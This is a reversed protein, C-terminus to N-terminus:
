RGSTLDQERPSSPRVSDRVDEKVMRQDHARGALLQALRGAVGADALETCSPRPGSSTMPRAAAAMPRSEVDVEVRNRTRRGAQPRGKAQGTVEVKSRQGKVKSKETTDKLYFRVGSALLPSKM